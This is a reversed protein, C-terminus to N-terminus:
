HVLQIITADKDSLIRNMNHLIDDIVVKSIISDEISEDSAYIDYMNLTDGDKCIMM